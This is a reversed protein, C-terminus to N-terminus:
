ILKEGFMEDENGSLDYFLALAKFKTLSTCSQTILLYDNKMCTQDEVIGISALTDEFPQEIDSMIAEVVSKQDYKGPVKSLFIVIDKISTAGKVVASMAKILVLVQKQDVKPSASTIKNKLSINAIEEDEFISDLTNELTDGLADEITKVLLNM